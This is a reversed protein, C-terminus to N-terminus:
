LAVVLMQDSSKGLLPQGKTKSFCPLFEPVFDQQQPEPQRPWSSQKRKGQRRVPTASAMQVDFGHRRRNRLETVQTETQEMSTTKIGMSPTADGHGNEKAHCMSDTAWRELTSRSCTTLPTLSAITTLRAVFTVFNTPKTKEDMYTINACNINRNTRIFSKMCKTAFAM